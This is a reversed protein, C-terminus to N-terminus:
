ASIVFPLHKQWKRSSDRSSFSILIEGSGCEHVLALALVYTGRPQGPIEQGYRPDKASVFFPEPMSVSDLYAGGSLCFSRVFILNQGPRLRLSAPLSDLDVYVNDLAVNNCNNM